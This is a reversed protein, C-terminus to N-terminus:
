MPDVFETLETAFALIDLHANAVAPSTGAIPFDPPGLEWGDTGPSNVNQYCLSPM